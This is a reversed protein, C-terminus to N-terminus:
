TVLFTEAHLPAQKTTQIWYGPDVYHFLVSEWLQRRIEMCTSTACTCPHARVCGGGGVCVLYVPPPPNTGELKLHATVHMYGCLYM